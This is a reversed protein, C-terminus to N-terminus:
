IINAGILINSECASKPGTKVTGPLVVLIKIRLINAVLLFMPSM